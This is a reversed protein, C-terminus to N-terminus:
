PLPPAPNTRLRDLDERAAELRRILLKAKPQTAGASLNRAIWRITDTLLAAPDAVDPTPPPLEYREAVRSLAEFYERGVTEDVIQTYRLTMRYDRHGLLKMIGMLSMGANILSTAFTHRLRHTTLPESLPLDGGIRRLAAQYRDPSVPSGPRPGEILWPSQRRARQQLETVAALAAHDLPVLRENNMKGLPVKLMHKGGHDARVCDRELCRLEGVRLGTRRMLFLGLPITSGCKELRSQLEKDIDPPLPRPLYDPKKPLDGPRILARGPAAVIGQESLWDLYTRLSLLRDVRTAPHLGRAHLDAAWALCVSRDVNGLAVGRDCLWRHFGGLVHRYGKVTSLRRVPALFQLYRRVEEPLPKRHYGNLDEASFPGALGHQELWRLYRRVEYRNDNRTSQRVAKGTPAAVFDQVDKAAITALSRGTRLLWRHFMVVVRERYDRKPQDRLYTEAFPPLEIRHWRTM